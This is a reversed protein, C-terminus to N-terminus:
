IDIYFAFKLKKCLLKIVMSSVHSGTLWKGFSKMLKIHMHMVMSLLIVYHVYLYALLFIM